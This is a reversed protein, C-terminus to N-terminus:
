MKHPQLSIDSLRSYNVITNLLVVRTLDIKEQRGDIIIFVSGYGQYM